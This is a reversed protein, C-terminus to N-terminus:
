KTQFVYIGNFPVHELDLCRQAMIQACKDNLKKFKLNANVLDCSYYLQLAEEYQSVLDIQSQSCESKLGMLEYLRIPKSKGVPIVFDIERLLFLDKNINSLTYETILCTVKYVKTLAEIRSATNVSDGIVSFEMRKDSGINGSLAEGTNIGIGISIPNLNALQRELNWKNLKHEIELATKCANTADDATIFPVGFVSMMADGIFKDVIGNNNLVADICKGFYENLFLVVDQADMNESLETFHRIDTFLVTVQKRVGGLQKENIVQKALEPSMYRSLTTVARKESTIDEVILTIGKETNLLPFITYNIIKTNLAFEAGYAPQQVQLAYLMDKLLVPYHLWNMASTEQAFENSIALENLFWSHNVTKLKLESDFSIVCNTISSLISSLYNRIEETKKFLYSKEIAIAAQSSFATLLQEDEKTFIGNYKNIMQIVGVIEGNTKTIPMCLITKTKYGTKKDVEINFRIDDYADPINLLQGNMCVFGAIGTTMDMTIDMQNIKSWLKKKQADLLFLTSRDCNLLEKAAQMIADILKELELTKLSKTTDLLVEVKRQSKKVDELSLSNRLLISCNLSIIKFLVEDEITFAEFEGTVKNQKNCAVIVGLVKKSEGSYFPTIILSKPSQTASHVDISPNFLFNNKVGSINLLKKSSIAASTIGQGYSIREDKKISQINATRPPEKFEKLILENKGEDYLYILAIESQMVETIDGCIRSLCTSIQHDIALRNQTGLLRGIKAFLILLNTILEEREELPLNQVLLVSDAYAQIVDAMFNEQSTVEHSAIKDQALKAFKIRLDESSFVSTMTRALPNTHRVDPFSTTLSRKRPVEEVSFYDSPIFDMVLVLLQPNIKVQDHLEYKETFIKINKLCESLIRDNQSHKDMITPLTVNLFQELEQKDKKKSAVMDQISTCSSKLAALLTFEDDLLSIDPFKYDLKSSKLIPTEQISNKRGDISARKSTNRTYDSSSRSQLTQSSRKFGFSNTRRKPDKSTQKSLALNLSEVIRSFRNIIPSPPEGNTLDSTSSSKRRRSVTSQNSHQRSM